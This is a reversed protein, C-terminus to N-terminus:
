EEETIDLCLIAYQFEGLNGNIVGGGTISQIPQLEASIYGYAPATVGSDTTGIIAKFITESGYTSVAGNASPLILGFPSPIQVYAPPINTLAVDRLCMGGFDIRMPQSLNTITQVVTYSLLKIVVKTSARFGHQCTALIRVSYPSVDASVPLFVFQFLM